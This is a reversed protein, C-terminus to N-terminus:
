VTSSPLVHPEGLGLQGLSPRIAELDGVILTTLEQPRLHREAARTVEEPTIREVTPVFQTFYDDPLDYLVLQATARAVQDATEFNRAYGRTLAAVGVALEDAGVPRSGRIAAIESLSERIAAATAATQVSVQLVFPGAQKRFDFTTRAGYTFGKDERLNLNVRSVFQGGLVTNAALLAFYDPTRRAVAVHGIRLESQPAGPRVLVNLRAPTPWAADDSSNGSAWLGNRAAEDGGPATEDREVRRAEWDGFARQAREVMEAHSCDGAAVLTTVTPGLEAGHFARVDDAHLAALSAESGLPTHGYPHAAYLLRAFAREAMASPLDRLQILRHLRLQRVRAFDEDRLAPRVVMDGLLDVARDAFRSLVTTGIFSADPGIDSELQAGIAALAEHMQIASRDGCGEDLMDLTIAALGEQSPPDAAAGRKVLVLLSVVPIARHEVTWVDIGNSLRSKHIVPFRFAPASGTAPLRSRDIPVVAGRDPAASV